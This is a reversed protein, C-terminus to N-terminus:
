AARQSRTASPGRATSSRQRQQLHRVLQRAVSPDLRVEPRGGEILLNPTIPNFVIARRWNTARVRWGPVAIAPHVPIAERAVTSLYTAMARAKTQVEQVIETEVGDPFRLGKGDFAVEARPLTRVLPWRTFSWQWRWGARSRHWLSEVVFVGRTGMVLHHVRRGDQMLDHFVWYDQRMLLNLSQATASQAAISRRLRRCAPWIRAMEQANWGLAMVGVVALIAVSWRDGAPPVMRTLIVYWALLLTPLIVAAGWLRHQLRELRMADSRAPARLLGPPLAARQPQITFLWLSAHLLGLLALFVLTFLVGPVIQTSSPM